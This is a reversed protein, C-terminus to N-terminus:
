LNIAVIEMLNRLCNKAVKELEVKTRIEKQKVQKTAPIKLKKKITILLDCIYTAADKFPSGKWNTFIASFDQCGWIYYNWEYLSVVAYEFCKWDTEQHTNTSHMKVKPEKIKIKDMQAM